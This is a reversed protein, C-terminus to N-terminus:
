NANTQCCGIDPERKRQAVDFIQQMLAADVHTVFGETEPPVPEARHKRCFDSFPPNLSHPRAAPAPMQVLNDHLDVAIRNLDM